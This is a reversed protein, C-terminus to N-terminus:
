WRGLPVQITRLTLNYPILTPLVPEVHGLEELFYRYDFFLLRSEQHAQALRRNRAHSPKSRRALM